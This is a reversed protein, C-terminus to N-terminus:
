LTVRRRLDSVRKKLRGFETLTYGTKAHTMKIGAWKELRSLNKDKLGLM